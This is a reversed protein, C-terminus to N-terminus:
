EDGCGTKARQHLEKHCPKCVPVVDLWNKKQYGIYHHYETAGNGCEVCKCDSLKKLEGKKIAQSVKSGAGKVKKRYASARMKESLTLDWYNRRLLLADPDQKYIRWYKDSM